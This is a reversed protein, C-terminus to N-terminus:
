NNKNINVAVLHSLYYGCVISLIDIVIDTVDFLGRHSFGQAFEIALIIMTAAIFMRFFSLSRFLYGIPLFMIFNMLIQLVNMYYFNFMQSIDFNFTDGIYVRGFLLIAMLLFYLIWLLKANFTNIKKQYLLQVVFIIFVSQGLFVLYYVIHEYRISGQYFLALFESTVNYFLAYSIFLCFIIIFFSKLIRM